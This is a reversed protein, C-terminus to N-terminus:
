YLCKDICKNVKEEYVFRDKEDEYKNECYGVCYDYNVNDPEFYYGFDYYWPYYLYSSWYHNNGYDYRRYKKNYNYYHGGSGSNNTRPPRVNTTPMRSGTVMDRTTIEKIQRPRSAFYEKTNRLLIFLILVLIIWFLM